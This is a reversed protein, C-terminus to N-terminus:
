ALKGFVVFDFTIPTTGWSALNLAAGTEDHVRFTFTTSTKGNVIPQRVNSILIDNRNIMVAFSTNLSVSLTVTITGGAINSVSSVNVGETVTQAGATSTCSITGWAKPLNGAFVKASDNAADTTGDARFSYTNTDDDYKLTDAAGSGFQLQNNVLYLHTNANLGGIQVVASSGSAADIKLDAGKFEIVNSGYKTRSALSSGSDAVASIAASTDIAFFSGASFTSTDIQGTFDFLRYNVPDTADNAAIGGLRGIFIAGSSAKLNFNAINLVAQSSGLGSIARGGTTEFFVKGGTSVAGFYIANSDSSTNQYNSASGTSLLLLDGFLGNNFRDRRESTSSKSGLRSLLYSHDDDQVFSPPLNFPHRTSQAPQVGVLDRHSIKRKLGTSYSGETLEERIQSIAQAVSNGICILSFRNQYDSSSETSASSTLGSFLSDLTAGSAQIVWPVQTGFLTMAAEPVKFTVGEIITDTSNDWLYITGSPITTGAVPTVFLGQVLEPLAYRYFRSDSIGSTFSYGATIPGWYRKISPSGIVAMNDTGTPIKSNGTLDSTPRRFPLTIFYKNASISSLKLGNWDTQLENPIVSFSSSGVSDSPFDAALVNYEIFSVTQTLHLSRGLQIKSNITDLFWETDTDVLDATAVSSGSYVVDGDHKLTQVASTLTSDSVPKFDLTIESKGLFAAIPQKVRVSTTGTFDPLPLKANLLAQDGIARALNTIRNPFSSTVSDGSQNWLDGIAREVLSLGNKSQTAISTLKKNSPQEGQTFSVPIVFGTRLSDSM